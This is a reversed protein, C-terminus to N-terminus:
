FFHAGRAWKALGHFTTLPPYCARMPPESPAIARCVYDLVITVPGDNVLEVEMRAGFVGTAVPVGLERLAACFREYLPEAVEPPAAASFSPRNGKRTDALLTFQSVVLAAGGTDLLARDFRGDDGEFIRLRAVKGALRGRRGRRRRRRRRAARASGPRDDGGPRRRGGRALRAAGRGEPRHRAPTSRPRSSCTRRRDAAPIEGRAPAGDGGRRRRAAASRRLGLPAGGVALRPRGRRRRARLTPARGGALPLLQEPDLRGAAAAAHQSLETAVRTVLLTGFAPSPSRAASRASSSNAATAVGIQAAARREALAVVYTQVTLGM